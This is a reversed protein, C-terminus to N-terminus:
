KLLASQYRALFHGLIPSPLLHAALYLLKNPFGPIIVTKGRFLGQLILAAAKEPSMARAPDRRGSAASFGTKLAGPCACSLAVSLPRLEQRLSRSLSFVFSKTAYYGACFPGPTWAGTSAITLVRPDPARQLVPLFLRLLLTLATVNLTLMRELSEPDSSLFEGSLGSGANLILLDPQFSRTVEAFLTEAAGPATLDLPFHADSCAPASPSRGTTLVTYGRRKLEQALALGLGSTSGTILATPM